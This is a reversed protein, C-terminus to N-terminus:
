ENKAELMRERYAQILCKFMFEQQIEAVSDWLIEEVPVWDPLDIGEARLEEHTPIRKEPEQKPEASVEQLVEDDDEEHEHVMALLREVQEETLMKSM